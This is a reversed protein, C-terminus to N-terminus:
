PANIVVQVFCKLESQVIATVQTITYRKFVMGGMTKEKWLNRRARIAHAAMYPELQSDTNM